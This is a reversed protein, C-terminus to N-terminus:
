GGHPVLRSRGTSVGIAKGGVIPTVTATGHSVRTTTGACSDEVSLTGAVAHATSDRGRVAYRGSVVVSARRVLTRKHGARRCQAFNGDTLALEVLEGQEHLRVTVLAARLTIQAPTSGDGRRTARLTVSGHRADIVLGAQVPLLGKAPAFHVSDAARTLVRGSVATVAVVPTDPSGSPSGAAVHELAVVSATGSDAAFVTGDAAVAVGAPSAISALDALFVGGDSLQEVRHNGRDSVYIDGLADTAIGTGEQIQGESGGLGGLSGTPVGDPGFVSIIGSGADLVLVDGNPAVTLASPALAVAPPLPWRAIFAGDSTFQQISATADAVYVRDASDTAVGVPSEFQGEGTGPTGWTTLVDGGANLKVIRNNGTDAVYVSGASDTALGHPASFLGLGGFAGSFAGQDTFMQVRSLGPDADAVYVVGTPGVAVGSPSLFQGDRAGTGGWDATAAPSSVLGALAVVAASVWRRM